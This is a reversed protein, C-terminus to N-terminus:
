SEEPQHLKSQSKKREEFVTVELKNKSISMKREDIKKVSSMHINKHRSFNISIKRPDINNKANLCKQSM